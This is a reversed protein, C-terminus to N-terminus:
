TAKRSGVPLLDDSATTFTCLKIADMIYKFCKAVNYLSLNCGQNNNMFQKCLFTQLMIYSNNVCKRNNM